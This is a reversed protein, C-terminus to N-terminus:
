ETRRMREDFTSLVNQKTSVLDSRECFTTYKRAYYSSSYLM